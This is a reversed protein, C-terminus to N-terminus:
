AVVQVQDGVQLTEFYRAAADPSLHICGHSNVTLSGEHFAIGGSTFYTSFPMEGGFDRSWDDRVKWLVPFYGVPTEYGPRGHTIPVPGYSVEGGSILWTEKTSLRVCAGETLDCPTGPVTMPPPPPAPQPDPTTTEVPPASASSSAPESSPSSAPGSAESTGCATALFAIVVLATRRM